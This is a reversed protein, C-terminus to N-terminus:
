MVRGLVLASNLIVPLEGLTGYVWGGGPVLVIGPGLSDRNEPAYVRVSVGDFTENSM